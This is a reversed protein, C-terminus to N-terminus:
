RSSYLKQGPALAPFSLVVAREFDSALLYCEPADPRIVLNPTYPLKWDEFGPVIVNAVPNGETNLIVARGGFMIGVYMNGLEDMCLTDVNPKGPNKFTVIPSYQMENIKHDDTLSIRIVSNSNSEGIWLADSDWVPQHGDAKRSMCIGNPSAMNGFFLEASQYDDDPVLKWIGGGRHAESGRLDTIFLTGDDDFLMCDTRLQAGTKDVLRTECILEGDPTLQRISGRMMDTTFFRGDKHQAIGIVLGEHFHHFESMEGDPTIKMIRTDNPRTNCCYFNGEADFVPGELSPGRGGEGIVYKVEAEITPLGALEAPLQRKTTDITVGM